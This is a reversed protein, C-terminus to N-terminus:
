LAGAQIGRLGKLGNQPFGTTIGTGHIKFGKDKGMPLPLDEPIVQNLVHICFDFDLAPKIVLDATIFEDKQPTIPGLIDHIYPSFIAIEYLWFFALPAFYIYMGYFDM